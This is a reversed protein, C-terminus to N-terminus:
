SLHSQSRCPHSLSLPLSANLGSSNDLCATRARWSDQCLRGLVPGRELLSQLTNCDLRMEDRHLSTRRALIEDGARVLRMEHEEDRMVCLLVCAAHLVCRSVRSSIYTYPLPPPTAITHHSSSSPPFPHVLSLPPPPPPFSLPALPLLFVIVSSTLSTLADDDYENRSECECVWM